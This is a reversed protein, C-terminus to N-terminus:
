NKEKQEILYKKYELYKQGHASFNLKEFELDDIWNNRWAIEELNAIMQGQRNEIIKVYESAELLSEFTGADFWSTSRPLVQVNMQEQELYEQLIATIELEGRESKEVHSAIEIVRNDFFYLGPVALNSKSNIPKEVIRIPEGSDNLDVVGYDSPNKVHCAFISAGAKERNKILDRGMGPGHFINDGLILAVSSTGVFDSGITFAEALGRPHEQIAYQFSVGFNSGDGLCREFLHLDVPTTIILIERIGAMMLTSIPYFILPKNYIPLLQKSTAKTVPWLRSGTGGALVIGKM